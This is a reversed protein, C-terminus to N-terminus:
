EHGCAQCECPLDLLRRWNPYSQALPIAKEVIEVLMRGGRKVWRFVTVAIAPSGHTTDAAVVVRATASGIPHRLARRPEGARVAEGRADTPHTSSPGRPHRARLRRPACAFPRNIRNSFSDNIETHSAAPAATPTRPSVHH